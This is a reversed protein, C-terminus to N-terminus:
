VVSKRDEYAMSQGFRPSPPNVVTPSNWTNGDWEWTDSRPGTDWGGFMIVRGRGPDYAMAHVYRASPNTGPVVQNWGAGSGWIWTQNSLGGGYGGFLVHLNRAADYVISAGHRPSPGAYSVLQWSAAAGTWRWTDGRNFEDWGGFMLVSHTNPDYTLAHVSRVSPWPVPRWQHQATAPAGSGVALTALLTLPIRVAHRRRAFPCM